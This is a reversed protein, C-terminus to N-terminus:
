VSIKNYDTVAGKIRNLILAGRPGTTLEGRSIHTLSEISFSEGTDIDYSDVSLDVNPRNTKFYADIIEGMSSKPMVEGQQKSKLMDRLLSEYLKDKGTADDLVFEPSSSDATLEPYHEHFQDAVSKFPKSTKIESQQKSKILDHLLSKLVDKAKANDMLDVPSSSEKVANAVTPQQKFWTTSPNSFVKSPGSSSEFKGASNYPLYPKIQGKYTQPETTAPYYERFQQQQQDSSVSGMVSPQKDYKFSESVAFGYKVDHQQPKDYKPPDRKISQKEFEAPANYTQQVETRDRKNNNGNIIYNNRDPVVPSREETSGYEQIKYVASPKMYAHHKSAKPTSAATAAVLQINNAQQQVFAARRNDISNTDLPSSTQPVKYTFQAPPAIPRFSNEDRQVYDAGDLMQKPVLVTTFPKSANSSNALKIGGGGIFSTANRQPNNQVIKPQTATTTAAYFTNSQVQSQTKMAHRTKTTGNFSKRRTLEEDAAKFSATLVPSSYVPSVHVVDKRNHMNNNASPVTTAYVKSTVLHVSPPPLSTKYHNSSSQAVSATAAVAHEPKNSIRKNPAATVFVRVVDSPVEAAAAVVATRPHERGATTVDNANSLNAYVQSPYVPYKHAVHNLTDNGVSIRHNKYQQSEDIMRNEAALSCAVVMISVAISLKM